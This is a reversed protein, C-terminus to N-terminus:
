DTPLCYYDYDFLLLLPLLRLLVRALLSGYSFYFTTPSAFVVVVVGVVAVGVVAVGVVAVGGVGVVVVVVVVVVPLSKRAMVEQASGFATLLRRASVRGVGPTELLRLWAGLEENDM